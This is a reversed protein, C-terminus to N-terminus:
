PLPNTRPPRRREADHRACRRIPRDAVRFVGRWAAGLRPVHFGAREAFTVSRYSPRARAPVFGVRSTAPAQMAVSSNRISLLNPTTKRIVTPRARVAIARATARPAPQPPQLSQREGPLRRRLPDRRHARMGAAIHFRLRSLHDPLALQQLPRHGTRCMRGREPTEDHQQQRDDLGVAVQEGAVKAMGPIPCQAKMPNMSSRNATPTSAPMAVNVTIRSRFLGLLSPRLDRNKPECV